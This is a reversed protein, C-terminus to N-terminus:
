EAADPREEAKKRAAREGLLHKVVPLTSAAIFGGILATFLQPVSFMASIAAAQKEPLELIMPVALKVVGLFLTLFKAAASLVCAPLYAFVSPKGTGHGLKKTFLWAVSFWVTVFVANGAAIFPILEWLQPGIGLLRALVPSFAAVFFGPGLGCVVTTVALILNVGSGTLLTSGIPATAAQYSILLALFAATRALIVTHRVTNRRKEM